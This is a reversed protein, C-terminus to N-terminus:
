AAIRKDILTYNSNAEFIAKATKVEVANGIGKKQQEQTGKFKYDAPFGMILKLEPVKLMRSKIDVISYLAMFEKIKVVIDSDDAYVPIIVNEGYIINIISIPAKDQRAVIVPSPKDVSSSHGYWGPNYLLQECTILNHKDCTMVTGAPQNISQHNHAGSYQKDLWFVATILSLSDKTPITTSPRELSYNQPGSGHYITLFQKREQFKDKGGAVHKVLADYYRKFTNDCTNRRNRKPITLNDKKYFVSHGYDDLDLVDKVPLWKKLSGNFLDAQIPNKAHTPKPFKIEIGPKAFIGFYRERATYAGFDASNLMRYEYNYGYGIITEKWQQYFIGNKKSYPEWAYEEQQTKKNFRLKLETHTAFQKKAKIRLPGWSMFEEVNEVYVMDPNLAEIYRFMSNPLTRSDADRSQGGKANSYNTCEASFWLFVKASPYIAKWFNLCEVMESICGNRIDEVAHKVEPHNTKHTEIAIPDHNLAYIVKVCKKGNVEALHAGSTLGGKGCFFDFGIQQIDENIANIHNLGGGETHLFLQKM